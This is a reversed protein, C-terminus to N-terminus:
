SNQRLSIVRKTDYIIENRQFQNIERHFIVSVKKFFPSFFRVNLRNCM